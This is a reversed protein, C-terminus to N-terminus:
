RIQKINGILSVDFSDYIAKLESLVVTLLNEIEEYEETSIHISIKENLKHTHFLKNRLGDNDYYKLITKKTVRNLVDNSDNKIIECVTRLTGQDYQEINSLPNEKYIEIIIKEILPFLYLLSDFNRKFAIDTDIKGLLKITTDNEISKIIESNNYKRRM